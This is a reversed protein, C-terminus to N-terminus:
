SILATTTQFESEQSRLITLTLGLDRRKKFFVGSRLRSCHNLTLKFGVSLNLINEGIEPRNESSCDSYFLNAYFISFINNVNAGKLETNDTILMM